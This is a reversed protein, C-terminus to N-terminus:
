RCFSVETSRLFIAVNRTSTSTCTAYSVAHCQSNHNCAATSQLLYDSLSSISPDRQWGRVSQDSALVNSPWPSTIDWSVLHTVVHKPTTCWTMAFFLDPFFWHHYFSLTNCNRARNGPLDLAVFSYNFLLFVFLFVLFSLFILCSFILFCCPTPPTVIAHVTARFILDPAVFSYNVLELAWLGRVLSQELDWQGLLYKHLVINKKWPPFFNLWWKM